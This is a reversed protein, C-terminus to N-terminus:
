IRLYTCISSFDLVAGSLSGLIAPSDLSVGRNRLAAVCATAQAYELDADGRPYYLFDPVQAQLSALATTPDNVWDGDPVGGLFAASTWVANSPELCAAQFVIATSAGRSALTAASSSRYTWRTSYAQWIGSLDRALQSKSAPTAAVDTWSVAIIAFGHADAATGWRQVSALCTEDEGHLAIMVSHEYNPLDALRRPLYLYCTYGNLEIWQQVPADPDSADLRPSAADRRWTDIGTCGSCLMVAKGTVMAVISASVAKVFTRRGSSPPIVIRDAMAALQEPRATRLLASEVPDLVIGKNQAAAVPDRLLDARFQHNLAALTLVREVGQPLDSVEVARRMPRGGVITTSASASEKASMADPYCAEACV